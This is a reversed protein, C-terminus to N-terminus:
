ESRVVRASFRAQASYGHMPLGIGGHICGLLFDIVVAEIWRLDKSHVPKLFTSCSPLNPMKPLIVFLVTVTFWSKSSTNFFTCANMSLMPRDRTTLTQSYVCHRSRTPSSLVVVIATHYQSFRIPQASPCRAINGTAQVMSISLWHRLHVKSHEGLDKPRRHFM